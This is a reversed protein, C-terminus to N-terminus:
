RPPRSRGRLVVQFDSVELGELDAVGVVSLAEWPVDHIEGTAEDVFHHHPETKPDFVQAGETLSGDIIQNEIQEALQRFIPRSDDM